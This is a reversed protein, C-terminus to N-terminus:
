KDISKAIEKLVDLDVNGSVVFKYEENQFIILNYSEDKKTYLLGMQNNILIEDKDCNETDLQLPSNLNSFEYTINKGDSKNSYVITGMSEMNNKVIIDYNDPIYRPYYYGKFEGIIHGKSAIERFETYEDKDIETLNIMRFFFADVKGLLSPYFIFTLIIITAVAVATKFIRKKRQYKRGDTYMNNIKDIMRKDFDSLGPIDIDDNSFSSFLKIDNDFQVEAARRLLHEDETSLIEDINNKDKM